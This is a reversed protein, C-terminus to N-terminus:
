PHTSRIVDAVSELHVRVAEAAGDPDQACVADIIALHQPLSVDPRRPHEGQQRRVRRCSGGGRAAPQAGTGRGRHSLAGPQGAGGCYPLAGNRRGPIGGPSGGNPNPLAILITLLEGACKAMRLPRRTPVSCGYVYIYLFNNVIWFTVQNVQPSPATRLAGERNEFSLGHVLGNGRRGGSVGGSPAV